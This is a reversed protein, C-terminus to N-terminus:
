ARILIINWNKLFKENQTFIEHPDHIVITVKKDKLKELLYFNQYMDSIFIKKVGNLFEVTRKEYKIGYGFDGIREDFAETLCIVRKNFTLIHLL